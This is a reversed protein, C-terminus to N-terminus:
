RAMTPASGGRFRSTTMAKQAGGDSGRAAGRPPGDMFAVPLMTGPKTRRRRYVRPLIGM